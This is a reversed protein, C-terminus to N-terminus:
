LEVVSTMSSVSMRKLASSWWQATRSWATGGSGSPWPGASTSDTAVWSTPWTRPSMCLVTSGVTVM